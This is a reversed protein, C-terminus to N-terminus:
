DDLYLKKYEKMTLWKAKQPKDFFWTAILYINCNDCVFDTTLKDDKPILGTDVIEMEENCKKCKM